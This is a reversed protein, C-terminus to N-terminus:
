KHYGRPILRSGGIWVEDSPVLPNAVIEFPTGMFMVTTRKPGLLGLLSGPVKEVVEFRWRSLRGRLARENEDVLLCRFAESIDVVPDVLDNTRLWPFRMTMSM